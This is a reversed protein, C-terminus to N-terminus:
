ENIAHHLPFLISFAEYLKAAHNLAFTYESLVKRHFLSVPAVKEPLLGPVKIILAGSPSLIPPTPISVL